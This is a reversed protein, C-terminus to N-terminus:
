LGNAPPLAAIQGILRRHLIHLPRGGTTRRSAIAFISITSMISFIICVFMFMRIGDHRRLLRHQFLYFKQKYLLLSDDRTQSLLKDLQLWQSESGSSSIWAGGNSSKFLFESLSKLKYHHWVIDGMSASTTRNCVIWNHTMGSGQIIDDTRVFSLFSALLVNTKDEMPWPFFRGKHKSRWTYAFPTPLSRKVLGSAGFFLGNVEVQSISEDSFYNDLQSNINFAPLGNMKPVFYCDDDFQAIVKAAHSFRLAFDEMALFQRMSDNRHQSWNIVTVLKATVFPELARVTQDTSFDNYLFFHDFGLM